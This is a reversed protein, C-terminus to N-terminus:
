VAVENERNVTIKNILKEFSKQLADMEQQSTNESAEYRQAFNSMTHIFDAITTEGKPLEEIPITETM